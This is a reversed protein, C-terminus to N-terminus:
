YVVRVACVPLDSTVLVECRGDGGLQTIAAHEGVIRGNARIM